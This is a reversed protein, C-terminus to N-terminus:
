AAHLSADWPKATRVMANLISLLKRMCAVLAIKRPKGAALLRQYFCAIAPNRRTAVLAAMYLSRRVQARGGWIMRKGRMKGSDRNFPAVGVLAAIQRRDLTGLEPLEAILTATTAPGVGRASQLLAAVDAHHREIHSALQAEIEELQKRIAAILKEISKRAAAHSTALRRREATLMGILQSRRLVLAQLRQQDADALVKVFRARNPHGAIVQALQALVRADIADTKALYGMAKAFDRAQRPNILAVAVGAAQLACALAFEYGGSAELVVLEIQHERVREVIAEHGSPENAFSEAVGSPGLALEVADKAVDVGAYRAEAM